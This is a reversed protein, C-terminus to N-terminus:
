LYILAGFSIMWCLLNVQTFRDTLIVQTPSGSKELVFTIQLYRLLGLVVFGTTAYVHDSGLRKTVEISTTYQLYAVICCAGLLTIASNLMELNYGESAPRVSTGTKAMMVVDDRRKALALFLALLFTTVVIWQSLPIDAVFSGVYLRLAFGLAIISVDVLPIQKLRWSYGLNMVVYTLLIGGAPISLIFMWVLGTLAFALSLLFAAKPNVEGAALPRRQKEPHLRDEEVDFLDNFIYVASAVLSFAFFGFVTLILGDAQTIKGAFFLPMLIFVNKVYQHPRALRILAHLNPM